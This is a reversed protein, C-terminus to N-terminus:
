RVLRCRRLEPRGALLGALKGMGAKFHDTAAHAGLADEDQWEEIFTFQDPNDLSELLTYQLCGPESRSPEVLSELVARLEGAKGEASHMTAVIMLTDTAM